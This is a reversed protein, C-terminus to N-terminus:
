LCLAVAAVNYLQLPVLRNSLDHSAGAALSCCVVHSPSLISISPRRSCHQQAHPLHSSVVM